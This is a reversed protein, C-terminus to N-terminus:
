SKILLSKIVSILKEEITDSNKVIYVAFIVIIGWSWWPIIINSSGLVSAALIEWPRALMIITIYRTLSIKSLGAMFSIADDPFFPLLLMLIIIAEGKKSLFYKEYKNLVKLSIFREVFARGFKRVIIFVVLSGSIIALMSIFFSTWLGFIAGGVVASINSPIPAVIVSIFQIIFFMMYAKDGYGEIYSQLAIASSMLNLINKSKIYYSIGIIVLTFILLWIYYKVKKFREKNM